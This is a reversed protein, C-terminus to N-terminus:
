VITMTATTIRNIIGCLENNVFNHVFLLEYIKLHEVLNQQEGFELQWVPLFQWFQGLFSVLISVLFTPVFHHFFQLPVNRSEEFNGEYSAHDEGSEEETKVVICVQLLFFFILLIHHSNRFLSGNIILLLYSRSFLSNNASLEILLIHFLREFIFLQLNLGNEIRLRRRGHPIFYFIIQRM